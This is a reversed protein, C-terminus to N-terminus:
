ESKRNGGEKGGEGRFVVVRVKIEKVNRIGKRVGKVENEIWM